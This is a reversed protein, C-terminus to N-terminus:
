LYVLTSVDLQSHLQKRTFETGSGNHTAGSPIFTRAFCARIARCRFRSNRHRNECTHKLRRGHEELITEGSANSRTARSHSRLQFRAGTGFLGAQM